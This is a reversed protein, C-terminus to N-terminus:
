AAMMDGTRVVKEAFDVWNRIGIKYKGCLRVIEEKDVIQSM